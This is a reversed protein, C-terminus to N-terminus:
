KRGSHSSKLQKPTLCAKFPRGSSSKILKQTEADLDPMSLRYTQNSDQITATQTDFSKVIGNVQRCVGAFADRSPLVFTILILVFSGLRLKTM